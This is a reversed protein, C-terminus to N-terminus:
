RTGGTAEGTRPSGPRSTGSTRPAPIVPGHAGPEGHVPSPLPCLSCPILGERDGKCRSSASGPAWGDVRREWWPGLGNGTRGWAAPISRRARQCGLGYLLLCGDRGVFGRRECRAPLLPAAFGGVERPFGRRGGPPPFMNGFAPQHGLGPSSAGPLDAGLQLPLPSPSCTGWVDSGARPCSGARHWGCHGWSQQARLMADCGSGCPMAVLRSASTASSPVCLGAGTGPPSVAGPLAPVAGRAGPM